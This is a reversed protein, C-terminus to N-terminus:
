IKCNCSKFEFLLIMTEKEIFLKCAPLIYFYKLSYRIKQLLFINPYDSFTSVVINVIICVACSNIKRLSMMFMSEQKSLIVIFNSPNFKLIRIMCVCLIHFAVLHNHKGSLYGMYSKLIKFRKLNM